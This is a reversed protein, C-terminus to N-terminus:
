MDIERMAKLFESIEYRGGHKAFINVFRRKGGKVAEGFGDVSGERLVQEGSVALVEDTEPGHGADLQQIEHFFEGFSQQREEAVRLM